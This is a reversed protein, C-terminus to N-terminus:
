NLWISGHKTKAKPKEYPKEYSVIAENNDAASQAGYPRLRIDKNVMINIRSGPRIILTPQRDMHRDAYDKFVDTFNTTGTQATDGIDIRNNNNNGGDDDDVLNPILDVAIDLVSTLAAGLLLPGWHNDVIDKLGSYGEKDVSPMDELLMWSGDPFIIRSWVAYVREQEFSQDANYLGFLKAGQPILLYKGSVSDYVNERIKATTYGPLDTNLGAQLVAPLITGQHIIPTGDYSIQERNLSVQKIDTKIQALREATAREREAEEANQAKDAEATESMGSAQQEPLQVFIESKRAAELQKDDSVQQAGGAIMSLPIEEEHPPRTFVRSASLDAPMPPLEKVGQEGATTPMKRAPAMLKYAVGAFLVVVVFVAIMTSTRSLRTAKPPEVDLPMKLDSTYPKAPETNSKARSTISSLWRKLKGLM